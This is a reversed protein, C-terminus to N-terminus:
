EPQMADRILALEEPVGEAPIRARVLRRWGGHFHDYVTTGLLFENRETADVLRVQREEELLDAAAPALQAPEVGAALSALIFALLGFPYETEDGEKLREHLEMCAPPLLSVLVPDAVFGADALLLYLVYNPPHVVEAAHGQCLLVM